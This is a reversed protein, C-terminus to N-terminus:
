KQTGLLYDLLPKARQAAAATGSKAASARAVQASQAEGDSAEAFTAGCSPFPAAVYSACTTILAHTRGYYGYRDFGNAALSFARPLQSLRDIGGQKDLSELLESLNKTVPRATPTVQKLEDLVPESAVLGRQQEPAAKGLAQFAPTGARAIPALQETARSLRAASADLDAFVPGSTASLGDIGRLTSRLGTLFSPLRRFTAELATSRQAVKENLDASHAAFSVLHGRERALPELVRESSDALSALAHRQESVTQLVRNLQLVTPDARHVADRLAVGNGALGAGLENIIISLRQRVPLRFIDLVLDPDVPSSTRAVPLVHQVEGDVKVTSLPPSAKGPARPACDVYRDGLLSAARVTCHASARFSEVRPAAIDMVAVADPLAPDSQDLTVGRVEGVKVGSVRVEMGSRLGSATDFAARVVYAHQDDGGDRAFAVWLLAVLALAGAVALFGAARTM